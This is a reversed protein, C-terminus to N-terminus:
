GTDRGPGLVAWGHGPVRWGGGAREAAGALLDAPGDVRLPADDLNLAVTLEGGDGRVRLVLAENTLHQTESRATHLWSHRRRLGVLDQHLRLTAAASDTGVRDGPPPYAPRIADDGGVREEKVGSLGFEDGYYIAPTGGLTMLLVLAHPHHREDAIQSVLRTVDHNGVFTWPVFTDLFDDHRRLTWDLEFFNRQELASWVAKWLEYQTVSDVGSHRVYDAYDGHLMEGVVYCDPHRARVAPLVDAWFAPPVAYAADLRWAGAGADLWHAMVTTVYEAVDPNAHDLALLGGHGEFTAPAGQPDRRLWGRRDGDLGAFDPGVHNFVGDLMIRIGRSRAATVLRAFAAEDGLRPDIRLHDVTDYGHTGSEFIPGLALGNVGLGVAHDLWGTLHDLRPQRDSPSAGSTDAGVFGLPYVHWWIAHRVWDPEHVTM